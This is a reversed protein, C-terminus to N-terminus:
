APRAVLGPADEGLGEGITGPHPDDEADDRKGAHPEDSLAIAGSTRAAGGGWSELLAHRGVDDSGACEERQHQDSRLDGAAPQRREDQDDEDDGADLDHSVDHQPLMSLRASLFSPLPGSPTSAFRFMRKSAAM